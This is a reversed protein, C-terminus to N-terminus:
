WGDIKQIRHRYIQYAYGCFHAIPITILSVGCSLWRALLSPVQSGEGRWIESNFSGSYKIIIRLSEFFPALLAAVFLMTVPLRIEPVVFSTLSLLIATSIAIFPLRGRMQIRSNHKTTTLYRGRGYKFYQKWLSKWSSRPYYWVKIDSSVYIAQSSQNLLRQNLEADQNTIQSTDFLVVPKDDLAVNDDSVDQSDQVQAIKLLDERWFCGLYVTDAYGNYEPNRYKAGGNGLLSRAALAVGAQFPSKAVFRQAGGVNLAKSKLLAEVCQEVYDYAYDSHADARLFIDGQAEQLLLNLGASQIKLPNHILKVRSDVFAIKKIIEQTGDTSGGDAILIEVINVYKTDIFGRIVREIAKVENFAPIAVTVSPLNFSNYKEQLQSDM